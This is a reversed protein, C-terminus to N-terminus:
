NHPESALTPWIPGGIVKTFSYKPGPIAPQTQDVDVYSAVLRLPSEIVHIQVYGARSGPSDDDPFCVSGTNIMLPADDPHEALIKREWRHTTASLLLDCKELVIKHQDLSLQNIWFGSVSHAAAIVIDRPGKEISHLTEVLYEKTETRFSLKDNKPTDPFHLQILHVTYGEAPIVAYYECGNERIQVNPLKDTGFLPLMPAGAGWDGQGDGFYENAGDAVNPYFHNRWWRDTELYGIFSNALGKKLHDGVGIVFRDNSDEVWKVMREFRPSDLPSLGKHDSMVAFTFVADADLTELLRTTAEPDFSGTSGHLLGVKCSAAILAAILLSRGSINLGRRM